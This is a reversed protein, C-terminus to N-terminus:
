GCVGIAVVFERRKVNGSRVRRLYAVGNATLAGSVLPGSLEARVRREVRPQRDQGFNM